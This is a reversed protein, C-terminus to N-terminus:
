RPHRADLHLLPLGTALAASLARQTRLESLPLPVRPSADHPALTRGLWMVDHWAGLKYGVSRYVGITTFGLSEHLRVSAPNPLAIGAYANRFGQLSLVAVLSSYMARGIGRRRFDDRVYASVDVSWQYAPRERHKSAYAYGAVEGRMVCVLWPTRSSVSAIRRAMEDGDPAELEFSTASGIVSPAYIAALAPGDEPAALRISPAPV